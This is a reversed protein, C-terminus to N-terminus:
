SAQCGAPLRLLNARSFVEQSSYGLVECICRDLGLVGCARHELDQFCMDSWTLDVVHDLLQRMVNAGKPRLGLGSLL